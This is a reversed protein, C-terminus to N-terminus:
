FGEFILLLSPVGSTAFQWLVWCNGLSNLAGRLTLWFCISCYYWYWGWGGGHMPPINCVCRSRALHEDYAHSVIGTQSSYKTQAVRVNYFTVTDILASYYVVTSAVFCSVLPCLSVIERKFRLRALFCQEQGHPIIHSWTRLQVFLATLVCFCVSAM